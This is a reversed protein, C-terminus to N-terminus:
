LLDKGEKEEVNSEKRKLRQVESVCSVPDSSVRQTKEFAAQLIHKLM